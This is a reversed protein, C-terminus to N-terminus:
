SLMEGMIRKIRVIIESAKIDNGKVNFLFFLFFNFITLLVGVRKVIRECDLRM